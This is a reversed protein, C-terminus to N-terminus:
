QDYAGVSFCIKDRNGRNIIPNSVTRSMEDFELPNENSKITPSFVNKCSDKDTSGLNNM